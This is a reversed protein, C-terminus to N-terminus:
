NNKRNKRKGSYEFNLFYVACEALFFIICLMIYHPKKLLTSKQSDMVSIWLDGKQVENNVYMEGKISDINEGSSYGFILNDGVGKSKVTLKFKEEGQPKYSNNINLFISYQRGKHFSTVVEKALLKDNKNYLKITYKCHKYIKKHKAPAVHLTVCNFAQDSYFYQTITKNNKATKTIYKNHTSTIKFIDDHVQEQTETVPVSGIVMTVISFVVISAFVIRQTLKVPRKISCLKGELAESGLVAMASILFIFPAAYSAKVEWIMYFGYAGIMTIIFILNYSKQKNFLANIAFILVLFHLALWFMQCYMFLIDSKSGVIYKALLNTQSYGALRAPYGQTGNGWIQGHKLYLHSIFTTPTYNGMQKKIYKNVNEKIEDTDKLNENEHVLEGDFMGNESLGMAVWHSLPFNKNSGTYYHNNLAKCVAFSGGAFVACIIVILISRKLRKKDRLTWLALCIFYAISLIAVVPRIFYGIVTFIGCLACNIILSKKSKSHILNAGCILIGGMFPMCFTATYVWSAMFFTTPYLMSIVLFKVATSLKGTLKKFGFFFLVEAGLLLIINVIRGVTIFDSIGLLSAIKYIFFLVIVIMNNNSYKGFYVTSGDIRSIDGKAMSIATDHVYFSDTM